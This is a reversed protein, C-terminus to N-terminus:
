LLSFAGGVNVAAYAEDAEARTHTNTNCNMWTNSLDLAFFQKKRKRRTVLYPWCKKDFCIFFIEFSDIQSAM